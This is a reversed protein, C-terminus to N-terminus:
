TVNGLKLQKFGTVSSVIFSTVFDTYYAVVEFYIICM